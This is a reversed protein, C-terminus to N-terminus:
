WVGGRGRGRGVVAGVVCGRSGEGKRGGGSGCVREEGGGKRGGDWGCM